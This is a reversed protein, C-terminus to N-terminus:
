YERTHTKAKTHMLFKKKEEVSKKRGTSRIVAYKRRCENSCTVKKASPSTKFEGGCIICKKIM